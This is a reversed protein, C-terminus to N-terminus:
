KKTIVLTRLGTMSLDKCEEDIFGKKQRNLVFNKMVADAGKLYLTVQNTQPNKVIIGMRKTESSFPFINLIEYKLQKGSPLVITIDTQTRSKLIIGFKQVIKVFTIEDPSSAQFDKEKNKNSKKSQVKRENQM